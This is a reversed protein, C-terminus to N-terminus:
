GPGSGVTVTIETPAGGRLVMLVLRTGPKATYLRAQLDALTAVPHTGVAEVVDGNRMGGFQAPSGPVVGTVLAGGGTDDTGVIGLWGRTVKQGQALEDAVGLALATPVFYGVTDSGVNRVGDLIGIVDGQDDLLVSGYSPGLPIEAEIADVLSPGGDMTAPTGVANVMGIAVDADGGGTTAGCLCATVAIQRPAVTEDAFSAASLADALKLVGVGSRSDSGLVSARLRQGDATVVDITSTGAAALHALAAAATVILQGGPLVVGTARVAGSGSGAIVIVLSHRMSSGISWIEQGTPVDPKPVTVLSTDSASVTHGAASRPGTGTTLAFAVSAVAAAGVAGVAAAALRNVRPLSRTPAAARMESPHRWIRDEPPLWGRMPEHEGQDPDQGFDEPFDGFHHGGGGPM